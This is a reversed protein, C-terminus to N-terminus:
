FFDSETDYSIKLGNTLPNVALSLYELVLIFFKGCCNWVGNDRLCFGKESNKKQMESIHM